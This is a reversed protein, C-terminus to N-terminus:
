KGNILKKVTNRKLKKTKALKRRIPFALTVILSILSVYKAAVLMASTKYEITIVNQKEKSYVMITGRKSEKYSIMKGNLTVNYSNYNMIPLDIEEGAGKTKVKFKEKNPFIQPIMEQKVGDVYGIHSVLDRNHSVSDKKWYDTSGVGLNYGLINYFTKPDIKFGMFPMNRSSSPKYDVETQSSTNSFFNFANSIFFMTTLSAVCVYVKKTLIKSSTLYDIINTGLLALFLNVITQLRTPFQLNKVPTNQLLRWPFVSTVMLFFCVGIIAICKTENDLKKWLIFALLIFLIPLIGIMDNNLSTTIYDGFPLASKQLNVVMTLNLKNNFMTQIFGIWYFSTIFITSLVAFLLFKLNRIWNSTCFVGLLVIIGVVVSYMAASLLHSYIVGSMGIALICWEHEVRFFISYTGFAILPLFIMGIGEGLTFGSFLVHFYWASITYLFSFLVSKKFNGKWYKMGTWYAIAMSCFLILWMGLYIAHVPNRLLLMFISFPYLFLAPYLLNLPAGVNNFSYVSIYPFLSGNKLNMYIEYIRQLHFQMDSGSNLVNHRWFPVMVLFCVAMFFPYVIIHKTKDSIKFFRIKNREWGFKDRMIYM